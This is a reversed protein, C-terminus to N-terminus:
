LDERRRRYGRRREHVVQVGFLYLGMGRTLLSALWGPKQEVTAAAIKVRMNLRMFLPMWHKHKAYLARQGRLFVPGHRSERAGAHQRFLVLRKPLVAYRCGALLARAIFDKDYPPHVDEDFGGLRLYVDRDVMLNSIVTGPNALIFDGPGLGPPVAKGPTRVDELLYTLWGYVLESGSQRKVRLMEELYTPEWLDDDDLFAVVDGRAAEVGITRSICGRGGQNHGIYKVAVSTKSAYSAVLDRTSTSDTNDSVIIELPAHTQALISEIAEALLDDRLHTPIICSVPSGM